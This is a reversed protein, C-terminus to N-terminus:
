RKKSKLIVFLATAAGALLLIAIIFSARKLGKSLASGTAEEKQEEVVTPQPAEEPTPTPTAIVEGDLFPRPQVTGQMVVPGQPTNVGPKPEATVFISTFPRGVTFLKRGYELQGMKIINGPQVPNAWMVYSFVESTAPYILDRCTVLVKYNRDQGQHSEAQCRYTENTTSRLETVGETALTASPIAIFSLGLAISLVIKKIKKM